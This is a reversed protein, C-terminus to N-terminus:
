IGVKKLTNHYDDAVQSLVDPVHKWAYGYKIRKIAQFGVPYDAAIAVSTEGARLRRRIEPIDSETLQAWPITSGRRYNEPHKRPGSRDGTAARGKSVMDDTNQQATGLFLHDPRVCPPNDCRHLVWLGDPIPGNILMWAIRHAFVADRVGYNTSNRYAQWEWCGDSLLVKNWFKVFDPLSRRRCLASCFRSASHAPKFDGGCNSCQRIPNRQQFGFDVNRSM